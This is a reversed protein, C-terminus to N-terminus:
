PLQRNNILNKGNQILLEQKAEPNDLLRIGVLIVYCAPKRPQNAYILTPDGPSTAACGPDAM